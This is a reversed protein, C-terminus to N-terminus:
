MIRSNRLEPHAIVDNLFFTLYKKQRSIYDPDTESELWGAKEIHPLRVGPYVAELNGKLKVFDELNRKCKVASPMVKIHFMPYDSSFFSRTIIEHDNITAKLKPSSLANREFSKYCKLHEIFPKSFIIDGQYRIIPERPQVKTHHQNPQSAKM